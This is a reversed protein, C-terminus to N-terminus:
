RPCTSGPAAVTDKGHIRVDLRREYALAKLEQEIFNPMGEEIVLVRSKGEVFALVEEPM